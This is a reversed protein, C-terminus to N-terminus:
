QQGIHKGLSGRWTGKPEGLLERTINRGEYLKDGELMEDATFERLSEKRSPVSFSSISFNNRFFFYIYIYLLKSVVVVFFHRGLTPDMKAVYGMHEM